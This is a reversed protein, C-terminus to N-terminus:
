RHLSGHQWGRNNNTNGFRLASSPVYGSMLFSFSRVFRCSEFMDMVTTDLLCSEEERRKTEVYVVACVTGPCPVKVANLIRHPARPIQFFLSIPPSLVTLLFRPQIQTLVALYRCKMRMRIPFCIRVRLQDIAVCGTVLRDPFRRIRGAVLSMLVFSKELSLSFIKELSVEELEGNEGTAKAGSHRITGTWNSRGYVSQDGFRMDDGIPVLVHGTRHAAGLRRALQVVVDVLADLNHAVAAHTPKGHPPWESKYYAELGEADAKTWRPPEPPPARLAPAAPVTTNRTSNMRTKTREAALNQLVTRLLLTGTKAAEREYTADILFADGKTFGNEGVGAAAEGPPIAAWADAAAKMASPTTNHRMSIKGLASTLPTWTNYHDQMVTAFVSGPTHRPTTTHRGGSSSSSSSSSSSRHGNWMFELERARARRVKSARPLRNLIAADRGTARLVAPTAGSYGFPDIAYGIRSSPLDDVRCQLAAHLVERGLELQAMVEEPASLAEDASVFGGVLELQGRGVLRVLADRRGWCRNRHQTQGEGLGHDQDQSDDGTSECFLPAAGKDRLYRELYITEAFVFTRRKDENLALIVNDLITFVDLAYEDFSRKWGPDVHSHHMLHVTLLAGPSSAPPSISLPAAESAQSPSASSSLLYVPLLSVVALLLGVLLLAFQKIRLRM